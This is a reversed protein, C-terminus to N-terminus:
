IIKFGSLIKKKEELSTIKKRFCSITLRTSTNNGHIGVLVRKDNLKVAGRKAITQHQPESITKLSLWDKTKYKHAFFPGSHAHYVSLEGSMPSNDYRYGYGNEWQYWEADFKNIANNLDKLASPHYMDDSDLRVNVMEDCDKSVKNMIKQEEDTKHYVIFIRKDQIKSFLSDITKKTKFNCLVFYKWNKYSQKLISQLTYKQWIGFRYRVWGDELPQKDKHYRGIINRNFPTYVIIQKM